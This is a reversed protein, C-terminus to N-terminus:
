RQAYDRKKLDGRNSGIGLVTGNIILRGDERSIDKVHILSGQDKTGSLWISKASSSTAEWRDFVFRVEVGNARRVGKFIEGRGTGRKTHTIPLFVHAGQVFIFDGVVISFHLTGKDLYDSINIISIKKIIIQLVTSIYFYRRLIDPGQYMYYLGDDNVPMPLGDSQAVGISVLQSFGQIRDFKIGLKNAIEFIRLENMYSWDSSELRMASLISEADFRKVEAEWKEKTARLTAAELNRSLTKKSHAQDHHHLCLVALNGIEHDRSEAWEEIHHVIVSLKHDRCVCCQYRNAFLVSMLTDIPIPPRAEDFLANIFSQDFGANKLEGEDAVKLKNITWSDNAFKTASHADLGRAMLAKETGRM